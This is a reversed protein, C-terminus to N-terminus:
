RVEENEAKFLNSPILKSRRRKPAKLQLAQVKRNTLYLINLVEQLLKADYFLSTPSILM